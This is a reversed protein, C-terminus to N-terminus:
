DWNMDQVRNRPSGREHILHVTTIIDNGGIFDVQKNEPEQPTWSASVHESCFTDASLADCILVELASNDASFVWGQLIHTGTKLSM